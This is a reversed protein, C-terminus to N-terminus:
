DLITKKKKDDGPEANTTGAVEDLWACLYLPTAALEFIVPSRDALDSVDMQGM